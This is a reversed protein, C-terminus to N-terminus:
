STGVLSTSEPCVCLRLLLQPKSISRDLWIREFVVIFCVAIQYADSLHESLSSMNPTLPEGRQESLKRSNLGRPRKTIKQAREPCFNATEHANPANTPLSWQKTKKTAKQSFDTSPGQVKAQQSPERSGRPVAKPRSLRTFNGLLDTRPVPPVARPPLPTGGLSRRVSQAGQRLKRAFAPRASQRTNPILM